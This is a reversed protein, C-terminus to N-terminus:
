LEFDEHNLGCELANRRVWGALLDASQRDGEVRNRLISGVANQEMYDNEKSFEDARFRLAQIAEVLALVFEKRVTM